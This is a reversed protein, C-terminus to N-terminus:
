QSSRNNNFVHKVLTSEPTYINLLRQKPTTKQPTCYFPTVNLCVLGKNRIIKNIIINAQADGTKVNSLYKTLPFFHNKLNM